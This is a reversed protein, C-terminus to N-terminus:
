FKQMTVCQLSRLFLDSRSVSASVSRFIEDANEISFDAFFSRNTLGHVMDQCEKKMAEDLDLGLIIMHITGSRRPNDNLLHIQRKTQKYLATDWSFGDTVLLLHSDNGSRFADSSILTDFAVPLVPHVLEAEAEAIVKLMRKHDSQHYKKETLGESFLEGQLTSAVVGFYDHSSCSHHYLHSLKMVLEEFTPDKRWVEGVEMCVLLSKGLDLSYGRCARLMEGLISRVSLKTSPLPFIRNQDMLFLLTETASIFADELIYEDQSLIGIALRGAEEHNGDQLELRIVVADLQQSRGIRTMSRFLPADDHNWSASLLQDADGVLERPDWVERLKKDHSFETLGRIRRLLRSFADESGTYLQRYELRFNWVDSDLSKARAMDAYAMERITHPLKDKEERAIWSLYLISRNFLRDALEQAYDAKRTNTVALDFRRESIEVAKNLYGLAEEATCVPGYKNRKQSSVFDENSTAFYINGLNNCVTGIAKEDKIRQFLGLADTMFESSWNINGSFFATNSIQILKYLRAFSSYVQHVEASGGSLPPLDDDLERKNIRQVIKLLLLIPTAVQKTTFYMFWLLLITLMSVLCLYVLAMKGVRDTVNAQVTAFPLRMMEAPIVIGVSYVVQTTPISGRTYDSPDVALAFREKVPSYAITITEVHGDSSTREFDRIGSEGRQMASLIQEDFYLRSASSRADFPLVLDGISSSPISGTGAPRLVTNSGAADFDPTILFGTPEEVFDFLSGLPEPSFDIMCQGLYEGTSPNALAASVASGLVGSEAFTYVPTIHAPAGLSLYSDRGMSYWSRCRPDYGFKGKPCLEENILYAANDDNSEFRSYYAYEFGCGIYGTCLGDTEFAVMTSLIRQSLGASAAYNHIPFEVVALPSMVRVRDYSTEYGSANAGKESGPLVSIDNWWLTTEPSYDFEPFSSSSMRKGTIPDADRAQAFFFREPLDRTYSEPGFVTCESVSPILVQWECACVASATEFFPCQGDVVGNANGEGTGHPNYWKCEETTEHIKTFSSTRKLGGFALWGAVRTYLYNDRISTALSVQALAAKRSATNQIADRELGIAYQSAEDVWTPVESGIQTTVVIAITMNTIVLPVVLLVLIWRFLSSKAVEPPRSAIKKPMRETDTKVNMGENFQKCGSSNRRSRISAGTHNKGRNIERELQTGSPIQNRDEPPEAPCFSQMKALHIIQNKIERSRPHVVQSAGPGSFNRIMSQFELVLEHVETRCCSQSREHVNGCSTDVNSEGSLKVEMISQSVREMWQLPLTLMETVKWLIGLLLITGAGGVVVIFVILTHIDETVDQELSIVETFTSESISHIVLFKPFYAPDYEMPIPPLPNLTFLRSGSIVVNEEIQRKMDSSDWVGTFDLADRLELFTAEDIFDSEYIIQGDPYVFLPKDTSSAITRGDYWVVANNVEENINLNKLLMSLDRRATDISTCGILEGTIRDFVGNGVSFYTLSGEQSLHPGYFSSERGKLIFDKCVPDELANLNRMPHLTGEKNCKSIEEETGLPKNTYPNTERMWECGVSELPQVAGPFNVTPIFIANGSGRNKFGVKMTIIEPQSEFLPKMLAGIAAAKKHLIKTENNPFVVGGTELDNNAETCNELYGYHFRSPADPNCAGPMFYSASATTFPVLGFYNSREQAQEEVLSPDWGFDQQWELLLPEPDLPYVNRGSEMDYFPVYRDDEWGELGYGSIRDMIIESLLHSAGLLKQFRENIEATAYSASRVLHYRVRQEMATESEEAIADGAKYMFVAALVIVISLMLFASIGLNVLLQRRLSQTPKFFSQLVNQSRTQKRRKNVFM